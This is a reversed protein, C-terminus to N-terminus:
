ALLTLPIAAACGHRRCTVIVNEYDGRLMYYQLIENYRYIFVFVTYADRLYLFDTVCLKMKEYLYLAGAHFRAQECLIM